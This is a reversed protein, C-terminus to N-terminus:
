VGGAFEIDSDSAEADEMTNSSGDGIIAVDDGSDGSGHGSSGNSDGNTMDLPTTADLNIKKLSRRAETIMQNILQKVERMEFHPRKKHIFDHAAAVEQHHKELMVKAGKFAAWEHLQPVLVSIVRRFVFSISRESNDLM